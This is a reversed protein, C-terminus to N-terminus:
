VLLHAYIDYFPQLVHTHVALVKTAIKFACLPVQISTMSPNQEMQMPSCILM